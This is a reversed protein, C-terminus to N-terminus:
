GRPSGALAADAIGRALNAATEQDLVLAALVDSRAPRHGDRGLTVFITMEVAGAGCPTIVAHRRPGLPITREM